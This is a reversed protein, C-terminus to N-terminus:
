WIEAIVLQSARNPRIYIHPKACLGPPYTTRCHHEFTKCRGTIRMQPRKQRIRASAAARKRSRVGCVGKAHVAVDGTAAEVPQRLGAEERDRALSRATRAM